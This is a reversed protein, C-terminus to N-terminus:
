ANISGIELRRLQERYAQLYAKGRAEAEVELTFLETASCKTLFEEDKHMNYETLINVSNAFLFDLVHVPQANAQGHKWSTSIVRAATHM